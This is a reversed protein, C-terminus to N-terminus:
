KRYLIPIFRERKPSCPKASKHWINWFCWGLFLSFITFITKASKAKSISWASKESSNHSLTESIGWLFFWNLAFTLDLGELQCILLFRYFYFWHCVLSEQQVLRVAQYPNVQWELHKVRRLVTTSATRFDEHTRTSWSSQPVTRLM